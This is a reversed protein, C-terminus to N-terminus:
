GGDDDDFEQWFSKIGMSEIASTDFDGDETEPVEVGACKAALIVDDMMDGMHDALSVSYALSLILRRTEENTMEKGQRHAGVVPAAQAEPSLPIRAMVAEADAIALQLAKRAYEAGEALCKRIAEDEDGPCWNCSDVWEVAHMAEAVLKLHEAFARRLPTDKRKVIQGATDAIKGFIYDYSGGSM